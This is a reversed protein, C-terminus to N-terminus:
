RREGGGLAAARPFTRVHDRYLGEYQAALVADPALRRTHGAAAAAVAGADRPDVATAGALLAAGVAAASEYAVRRVPRALVAALIAEAVAGDGEEGGHGAAVAVEDPPGALRGIAETARRVEFAIGELLARALQAPGHRLSLGLVAGAVDERWLVGQEGGAMYPAWRVGGAGAPVAAALSMLGDEDRGLLGALWAVSAGTALLDAEYGWWGSLAHPTVLVRGRRDLRPRRVAALVATSSGPIVAVRGEALAGVALAAATSDAAGVAVPVGVPLGFRRAAEATVRGSLDDSPRVPPLRGVDLGWPALLAPDFAGTALSFAGYGAATSPDTAAEGTLRLYLWDKASLVREARRGVSGFHYAYMPALYRGDVRMGTRRYVLRRGAEGLLRAAFADARSDMWTVAPGAIEEGALVVLTPLQGALGVGGVAGLDHRRGLRGLAAALADLWDAPNQEAQGPSDTRTPYAAREFAVAVGDEGVLAVKVSSTGLDIGLAPRAM